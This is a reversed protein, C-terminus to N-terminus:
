LTTRQGEGWPLKPEGGDAAALARAHLRLGEPCSKVSEACYACWSQHEAFEKWADREGRLEALQTEADEARSESALYAVEIRESHKELEAYASQEAEIHNRLMQNEERVLINQRITGAPDAETELDHIYRRIKDPLANLEASSVVKEDGITM